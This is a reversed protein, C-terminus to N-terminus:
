MLRWWVRSDHIHLYAIENAFTPGPMRGPTAEIVEGTSKHEIRLGLSFIADKATLWENSPGNILSYEKDFLTKVCNFDAMAEFSGVSNPMDDGVDKVLGILRDDLYILYDNGKM